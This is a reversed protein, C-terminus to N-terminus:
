KTIFGAAIGIGCGSLVDWWYHKHAQVRGLMTVFAIPFELAFKKGDGVNVSVCSLASHESPWSMDDSADPRTEHIIRKLLESAGVTISTRIAQRKFADAKDTSELSNITDITLSTAVSVYSIINILQHDDQAYVPSSILVLSLLIYKV